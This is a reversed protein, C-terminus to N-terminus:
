FILHYVEGDQARRDSFSMHTFTLLQESYSGQYLAWREGAFLGDVHTYFPHPGADRDNIKAAVTDAVIRDDFFDLPATWMKDGVHNIQRGYGGTRLAQEAQWTRLVLIEGAQLDDRVKKVRSTLHDPEAHRLRVIEFDPPDTTVAVRTLTVRVRLTGAGVPKAAGNIVSLDFWTSGSDTSFEATVTDTAVKRFAAVQFEWDASNANAYAKDQTEIVVSTAGDAVRIRNPKIRTDVTGTTVTFAGAEASSWHLTEHMFKQFGPVLKTGFCSLCRFDSADATDKECTCAVVGPTTPTVPLWLEARRGMGLAEELIGKIDSALHSSDYRKKVSGGWYGSVCKRGPVRQSM